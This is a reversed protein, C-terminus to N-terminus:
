PPFLQQIFIFLQNCYPFYLGAASLAKDLCFWEVGSHNGLICGGGTKGRGTMGKSPSPHTESEFSAEAPRWPVNKKLVQMELRISKHKSRLESHTLTKIIV